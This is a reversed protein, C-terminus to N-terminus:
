GYGVSWHLGVIIGGWVWEPAIARAGKRRSGQSTRLCQALAIPVFILPASRYAYVEGDFLGYIILTVLSALTAIRLWRLESTSSRMSEIALLLALILAAGWTVTGLWGQEAAIQLYLNHANPQSPVHNIYVYTALAMETSTLGAGTFPYDAILSLVNQWHTLRQVVESNRDLGATMVLWDLSQASTILWLYFGLAIVFLSGILGITNRFLSQVNVSTQSSVWALMGAVVSGVVLALIAM